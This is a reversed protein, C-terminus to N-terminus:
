SSARTNRKVRIAGLTAYFDLIPRDM